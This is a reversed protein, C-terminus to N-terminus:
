ITEMEKIITVQTGVGEESSIDLKAGIFRAREAMGFLGFHKTEAAIKRRREVDFGKGDDTIFIYIGKAESGIQNRVLVTVESADAHKIINNLSEQVIRYLNLNDTESLFYTDIEETVTLRFDLGSREEFSQCLNVLNAVIDNKTVDPPALNYSMSRVEYLSKELISALDTLEHKEALGKCYRLDQAVTDHLERAIRGREEEQGQITFKLHEASNEVNKKSKLFKIALMIAGISMVFFVIDFVIFFFTYARIISYLQRIHEDSIDM